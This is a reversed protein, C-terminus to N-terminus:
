FGYSVYGNDPVSSRALGGQTLREEKNCAFCVAQAADVITRGAHIEFRLLLFSVYGNGGGVVKEVPVFALDVDDIGGAIGIEGKVRLVAESDHVTRDYDYVGYAANFELGLLHPFVGIFVFERSDNEDVAHVAFPRSEELGQGTDVFLDLDLRRGQIERDALFITEFAQDVEQVHLSGRRPVWPPRYSPLSGPPGPRRPSGYRSVRTSSM